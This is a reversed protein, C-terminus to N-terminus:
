AGHRPELVHRQTVPPLEELVAHAEPLPGLEHELGGIGAGDHVRRETIKGGLESLAAEGPARKCLFLPVRQRCLRHPAERLCVPVADAVRGCCSFECDAPHLPDQRPRHLRQLRLDPGAIEIRRSVLQGEAIGPRIRRRSKHQLETRICRNVRHRSKHPPNRKVAIRLRCRAAGCRPLLRLLGPAANVRPHIQVPADVPQIERSAPARQIDLNEIVLATREVQTQPLHRVSPLQLEHHVHLLYQGPETLFIRVAGHHRRRQEIIM